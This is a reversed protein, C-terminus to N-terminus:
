RDVLRCKHSHHFTAFNGHLTLWRMEDFDDDREALLFVNRFFFHCDQPFYEDANISQAEEDSGGDGIEIHGM